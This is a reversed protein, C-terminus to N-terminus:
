RQKTGTTIKSVSFVLLDVGPTQCLSAVQSTTKIQVIINNFSYIHGMQVFGTM